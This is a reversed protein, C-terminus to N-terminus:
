QQNISDQPEKPRPIKESVGFAMRSSTHLRIASCMNIHWGRRFDAEQMVFLIM